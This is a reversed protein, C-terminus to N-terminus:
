QSATACVGVGGRERGGDGDDHWWGQEEEEEEGGGGGGDRGRPGLRRQLGAGRGGGARRQEGVREVAVVLEGLQGCEEGGVREGDEGGVGDVEGDRVGGVADEGRPEREAHGDGAGAGVADAPDGGHAVNRARAVREGGDGGGDVAAEGGRVPDAVGVADEAGLGGGGDVGPRSQEHRQM